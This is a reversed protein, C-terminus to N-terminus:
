GGGGALVRNPLYRSWVEALLAATGAAAPDGIVAIEKPGSLFFDLAAFLTGSEQPAAQMVPQAAELIEVSRRTLEDDGGLAGLRQLLLSAMGNPSPTISDLLDKRRIVLREAAKVFEHRGFVAGAEALAAIALGNWSTLIKEDKGPPVRESRAAVLAARLDAPPLDGAATLVNLGGGDNGRPTVGFWAAADPAVRTLEDHTWLYYSGEVGGSEADQGAF